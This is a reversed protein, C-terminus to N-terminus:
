EALSLKARAQCGWRTLVERLAQSQIPKALYDDMGAELCIERDGKMAHATLAVIPTHTGTQLERERIARTAEYGNMLPMQVDMFILDFPEREFANLAESGNSAVVVSHGESKLLLVGVRQNIANDEALLVHLPQVSESAGPLAPQVDAPRPGIVKLIATLLNARTVPKVVYHALGLEALDSSVLKVDASSLMMIRHAALTSDECIRKALTFGDMEPMQADLILLDFREAAQGHGHLVELAQAGSDALVPKMRWWLLMQRLTNRNTANDDVVLVRLGYLAEPEPIRTGQRGTASIGLKATFHFTSGQGTESEVWIRGGMLAVLRSCIALGLGTGGYLRTSSADAQVFAEFIHEQSARPVGIGTDSVSFRVTLDNLGRAVEVVDLRVEGSSTFKVANGLLNTVVQRVRGPDGVVLTPQAVQNEFLLELGKQHASLAITRVTEQLLEDLDFEVSDLSLRGAEIKSFDLIDNIIILLSEGSSRVTNLYYRQEETLETASALEAMGIIGNMPTRIEHSMNALFESKARSAAEAAEKATHLAQEAHKRETVDLHTGAVRVPTGDSAREVVKGRAEVWRWGGDKTRMRYDAQYSGTLGAMHNQMAQLVKPWDDPHILREWTDPSDGLEEASFGLVNSWSKGYSSRTKGIEWEWLAQSGGDLALSLRTHSHELLRCATEAKDKALALETTREAVKLELLDRHALLQKDRREIEALMANFSDTLQGLDDNSVKNARTTYDKHNSVAKATEALHRIPESIGARLRAALMFAVTSAGFLIALLVAASQKLRGDVDALDSELYITGIPQHNLVISRFLKLRAGEFWSADARVAPVTFSDTKGRAYTAFARRDESYLVAYVISRKARFGSLLEGAAEQDGFTLAATSNSGYMEALITLDDRMAGRLVFRVYDLVAAGSLTLAASVTAMIILLLKNKVPLNRYKTVLSV